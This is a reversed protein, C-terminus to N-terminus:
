FDKAEFRRKPKEALPVFSEDLVKGTSSSTDSYQRVEIVKESDINTFSLKFLPWLSFRVIRLRLGKHPPDISRPQVETLDDSDSIEVLPIVRKGTGPFFSDSM